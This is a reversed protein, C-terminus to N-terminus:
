PNLNVLEPSRFQRQEEETQGSIAMVAHLHGNVGALM